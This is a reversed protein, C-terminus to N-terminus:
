GRLHARGAELRRALAARRPRIAYEWAGCYTTREGRFGMKFQWLGHWAHSPDDSPPVGWLDYWVCGAERADQMAAWQVAYTPQLNSHEGSSGGFLYVARRGFRVVMIAAVAEGGARAVYVRCWALHDLRRQYAGLSPPSIHQRAATAAHQCHLELAGERAGRREVVVGRRSALRINYRHKPHFSALMEEPPRLPVLLTDVPDAAAAPVWGARRLSDGFAAPAEPEVRLRAVGAARAWTVLGSVASATAPVPGRRVSALRLGPPGSLLVLARAGGPLVVPVPRWGEGAQVEGFGASQLFSAAPDTSLLAQDWDSTLM